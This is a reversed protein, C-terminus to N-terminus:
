RKLEIIACVMEQEPQILFGDQELLWPLLLARLEGRTEENDPLILQELMEQVAVNLSPYRMLVPQMVVEVDAYM